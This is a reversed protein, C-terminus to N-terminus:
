DRLVRLRLYRTTFSSAPATDEVTVTKMEGRGTETVSHAGTALTPAGHISSAIATWGATLDSSAEVVIRLDTHTTDRRFQIESYGNTNVVLTPAPNPDHTAPNTVLAYELLNSRGDHDSDSAEAADGTNATSGFHLLRWNESPTNGVTLHVPIVVWASGEANSDIAVEAYYDGPALGATNLTVAIQQVGGPAITGATSGLSIWSELDPPRIRIALGPHAYSTNFSIPLGETRTDNQIGITYNSGTATLTQYQLLIEGTPKLIAECTVRGNANGYFGVDQFQVVFNGGISQSFLRSGSV